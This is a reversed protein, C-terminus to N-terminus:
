SNLLNIYFAPFYGTQANICNYYTFSNSIKDFDQKEWSYPNNISIEFPQIWAGFPAFNSPVLYIKVGSEFLNRAKRKDIRAFYVPKGYLNGKFRREIM